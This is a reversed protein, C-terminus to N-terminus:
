GAKSGGGHRFRGKGFGRPKESNLESSSGHSKKKKELKPNPLHTIIVGGKVRRKKRGRPSTRKKVDAKVEGVLHGLVIDEYTGRKGHKCKRGRKKQQDRM